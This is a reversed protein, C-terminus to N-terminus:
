GLLAHDEEHDAVKIIYQVSTLPVTMGANDKWCGQKEMAQLRRAITTAVEQATLSDLTLTWESVEDDVIPTISYKLASM